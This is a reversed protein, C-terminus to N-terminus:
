NTGRIARVLEGLADLVGGGGQWLDCITQVATGRQDNEGQGDETDSIVSNRQRDLVLGNWQMLQRFRHVFLSTRWIQPHVCPGVTIVGRKALQQLCLVQRSLHCITGVGERRCRGRAAASDLLLETLVELGTFLLVERILMAESTTPAAAYYEVGGNSHERSKQKSSASYLLCGDVEIKLSSQSRRDNVNGASGSDSWVRLFHVMRPMTQELTLLVRVPSKGFIPGITEITDM